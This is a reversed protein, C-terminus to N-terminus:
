SRAATLIKEMLVASEMPYQYYNPRTGTITFAHKEYFAIAPANSARVELYIRRGNALVFDALVSELLAAAVGSRRLPPAVALNLIEAETAVIRTIIFGSLSADSLVAVWGTYGSDRLQAYSQQSWQAAEPSAATLQAVAAADTSVLVRINHTFPM